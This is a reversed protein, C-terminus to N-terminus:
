FLDYQIDIYEIGNSKIFNILPTTAGRFCLWVVEDIEPHNILLYNDKKVQERIFKNLRVYGSKVEIMIKKEPIYKDVFRVGFPTVIRKQSIFEHEGFVKIILTEAMLEFLPGRTRNQILAIERLLGKKLSDAEARNKYLNKKIIETAKFDRNKRLENLYNKKM